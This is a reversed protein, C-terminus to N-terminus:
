GQRCPPPKWPLPSEQQILRQEEELMTKEHLPWATPDTHRHGNKDLQCYLAIQVRIGYQLSPQKHNRDDSEALVEVKRLIIKM